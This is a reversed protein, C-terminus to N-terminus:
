FVREKLMAFLYQGYGNKRLPTALKEVQEASIYGQRYAIEEPCAIKLGQREEVIRVFNGADLLSAHTGTDLWACGGLCCLAICAATAAAGDRWPAGRGRALPPSSSRCNLGHQTM